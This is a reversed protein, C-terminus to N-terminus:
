LMGVRAAVRGILKGHDAPSRSLCRGALTQDARRRGGPCTPGELDAARDLAEGALLSVGKQAQERAQSRAPPKPPPDSSGAANPSPPTALWDRLQRGSEQVARSPYQDVLRSIWRDLRAAEAPLYEWNKLEDLLHDMALSLQNEDVPNKMAKLIRLRRHDKTEKPQALYDKTVERAREIEYPPFRHALCAELDDVDTLEQIVSPIREEISQMFVFHTRTALREWIAIGQDDISFLATPNLGPIDGPKYVSPKAKGLWFPCACVTWYSNGTSM